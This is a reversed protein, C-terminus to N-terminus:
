CNIRVNARKTCLLEIPVETEPSKILQPLNLQVLHPVLEHLLKDMAEQTPAEAALGPVNSKAVYWVSAEEDWECEVTFTMVKRM